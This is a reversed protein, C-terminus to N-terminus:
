LLNEQSKAQVGAQAYIASRFRHFLEPRLKQLADDESFERLHHDVSREASAVAAEVSVPDDVSMTIFMMDANVRAVLEEFDERLQVAAAQNSVTTYIEEDPM